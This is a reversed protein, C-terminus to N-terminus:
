IREFQNFRAVLLPHGLKGPAIKRLLLALVSDEL